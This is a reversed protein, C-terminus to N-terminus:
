QQKLLTFALHALGMGMFIMPLMKNAVIFFRVLGLTFLVLSAVMAIQKGTSARTQYLYGAAVYLLAIFSSGLLSAVSGKRFGM